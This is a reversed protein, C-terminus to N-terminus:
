EAECYERELEARIEAARQRYATTTDDVLRSLSDHETRPIEKELHEMRQEVMDALIYDPDSTIRQLGADRKM